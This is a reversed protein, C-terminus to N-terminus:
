VIRKGAMPGSRSPAPSAEVAPDASVPPLPTPNMNVKAAPEILPLDARTPEDLGPQDSFLHLEPSSGTAFSPIRGALGTASLANALEGASQFRDSPDRALTRAIIGALAPPVDPNRRSIPVFTEHEKERIVEEHTAGFFPVQGTLLHYLTAGLAFIDSRGDVLAANLAQEYPM